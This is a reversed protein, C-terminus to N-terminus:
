FEGQLGVKTIFYLVELFVGLTLKPGGCGYMCMCTCRFVRVCTGVCTFLCACM